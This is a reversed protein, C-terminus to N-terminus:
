QIRELRTSVQRSYSAPTTAKGRGLLESKRNSWNAGRTQLGEGYLRELLEVQQKEDWCTVMILFQAPCVAPASPPDSLAAFQIEVTPEM